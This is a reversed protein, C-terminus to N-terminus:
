LEDRTKELREVWREAKLGIIRNVEIKNQVTELECVHLCLKVDAIEELLKKVAESQKIPTPNKRTIARRLKLAAQALEAGEEALQCLLEELPLIQKVTEIPCKSNNVENM